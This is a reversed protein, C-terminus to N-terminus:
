VPEHRPPAGAIVRQPASGFWLPPQPFRCRPPWRVPEPRGHPTAVHELLHRSTSASSAETANAIINEIEGVGDVVVRGPVAFPGIEKFAEEGLVGLVVAIIVVREGLAARLSGARSRARRAASWRGAASVTLSPYVVPPASRQAQPALDRRKVTETRRPQPTAAAAAAVRRAAARGEGALAARGAARALAARDREAFQEAVRARAAALEAAERAMDLAAPRVAPDGHWTLMAGLLGIATHPNEPVWGHVGAWDSVLATLDRPVEM